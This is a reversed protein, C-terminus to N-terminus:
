FRLNNPNKPVASGNVEEVERVKSGGQFPFGGREDMDPMELEYFRRFNEM